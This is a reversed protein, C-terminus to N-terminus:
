TTESGVKNLKYVYQIQQTRGNEMRNGVGEHGPEASLGM